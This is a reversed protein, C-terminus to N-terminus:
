TVDYIFINITSDLTWRMLLALKYDLGQSKGSTRLYKIIWKVFIYWKYGYFFITVQSEKETLRKKFREWKFAIICKIHLEPIVIEFHTSWDSLVVMFEIICKEIYKFKAIFDELYRKSSCWKKGKSVTRQEGRNEDCIERITDM